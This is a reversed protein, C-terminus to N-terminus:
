RADPPAAQGAQAPTAAPAEPRRATLKIPGNYFLPAPNSMVRAEFDEQVRTAAGKIQSLFINPFLGIV